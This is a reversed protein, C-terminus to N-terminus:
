VLYKSPDVKLLYKGLHWSSLGFPKENSWLVKYDCGEEWWWRKKIDKIIGIAEAEPHNELYSTIFSLIGAGGAAGIAAQTTGAIAIGAGASAVGVTALFAGPLAFPLLAAGVVAGTAFSEYKHYDRHVKAGMKTLVVWDGISLKESYSSM